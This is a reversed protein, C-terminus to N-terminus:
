AAPQAPEPAPHAIACAVACESLSLLTNNWTGDSHTRLFPGGPNEVVGLECRRGDVLTYFTHVGQRIYQIAQTVPFEWGHGGIATIGEYPNMRPVKIIYIVQLTAM